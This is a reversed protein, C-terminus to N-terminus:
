SRSSCTATACASNSSCNLCRVVDLNFLGLRRLWGLVGFGGTVGFSPVSLTGFTSTSPILSGFSFGGLFFSRLSPRSRDALSEISFNEFPGSSGRFLSLCGSVKITATQPKAATCRQNGHNLRRILFIVGFRIMWRIQVCTGIGVCFSGIRFHRPQLAVHVLALRRQPKTAPFSRASLSSCCGANLRSEIM